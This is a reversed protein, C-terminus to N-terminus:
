ETDPAFRGSPTRIKRLLKRGLLTVYADRAAINGKAEQRGAETYKGCERMKESLEIRKVFMPKPRSKEKELAAVHNRRQSMTPKPAPKATVTRKASPERKPLELRPTGIGRRSLEQSAAALLGGIDEYNKDKLIRTSKM